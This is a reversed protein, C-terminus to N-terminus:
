YDTIHCLCRQRSHDCDISSLNLKKVKRRGFYEMITYCLNGDEDEPSANKIGMEVIYRRPPLNDGYGVEFEVKMYDFGCCTMSADDYSLSGSRGNKDPLLKIFSFSPCTLSLCVGTMKWGPIKGCFLDVLKEDLEDEVHQQVWGRLEFLCDIQKKAETGMELITVKIGPNLITETTVDVDRDVDANSIVIPEDYDEIYRTYEFKAM